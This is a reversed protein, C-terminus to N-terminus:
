IIIKKDLNNKRGVYAVSLWFIISLSPQVTAGSTVLMNVLHIINCMFLTSSLHNERDRYLYSQISIYLILFILPYLFGGMVFLDGFTSHAIPTAAKKTDGGAEMGMTGAGGVLGVGLIYANIGYYNLAGFTYGYLRDYLLQNTYKTSKIVGKSETFLVDEGVTNIVSSNYYGRLTPSLNMILLFCMFFLLLLICKRLTINKRYYIFNYITIILFGIVLMFLASKSLCLFASYVLVIGLLIKMSNNKVIDLKSFILIYAYGVISGYITISGLFSLYRPLGGRHVMPIWSIKGFVTQYYLTLAAIIYCLLIIKLILKVDNETRIKWYFIQCLLLMLLIRPIGVLPATLSEMYIFSWLIVFITYGIYLYYYKLVRNIYRINNYNHSLYTIAIYIAIPVYYLITLKRLNTFMVLIIICNLLLLNKNLYM